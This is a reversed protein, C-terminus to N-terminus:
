RFQRSVAAHLKEIEALVRHFEATDRINALLSDSKTYPYSFFGSIAAKELHELAKDTRHALSNLHTLRYVASGMVSTAARSPTQWSSWGRRKVSYRLAIPRLLRRGCAQTMARWRPMSFICRGGRRRGCLVKRRGPLLAVKRGAGAWATAALCPVRQYSEAAKEYNGSYIHSKIIQREFQIWKSYAGDLRQALRYEAISRQFLGAYRLAYGLKAHLKASDPRVGIGDVLLRITQATRGTRMYVSALAHLARPQGPRISLARNLAREAAQYHATAAVGGEEGLRLEDEGLRIWAPAFDGDRETAQLLLGIDVPSADIGTLYLDLTASSARDAVDVAGVKGVVRFVADLLADRIAALGIGATGTARSVDKGDSFKTAVVDYIVRDGEICELDASVKIGNDAPRVSKVPLGEVNLGPVHGEIESVAIGAAWELSLALDAQLGRVPIEASAGACEIKIPELVVILNASLPAEEANTVAILSSPALVPLWLGLRCYLKLTNAILM